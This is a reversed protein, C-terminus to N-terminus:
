CATFPRPAPPSVEAPPSLDPPLRHCRLLGNNPGTPAFPGAGFTAPRGNVLVAVQSCTHFPM